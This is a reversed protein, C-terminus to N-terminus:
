AGTPPEKPVIPEIHKETTTEITKPTDATAPTITKVTHEVEKTDPVPKNHLYAFFPVLGSIVFTGFILKWFKASYITFDHPDVVMSSLGASFASAGGGIFAAILGKVWNGFDLTGGGLASSIQM